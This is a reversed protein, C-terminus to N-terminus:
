KRKAKKKPPMWLDKILDTNIDFFGKPIRKSLFGNEKLGLNILKSSQNKKNVYYINVLDEKEVVSYNDIKKPNSDYDKFLSQIKRLFVESHTEVILRTAGRDFSYYGNRKKSKGYSKYSFDLSYYFIFKALAAIMNPHLHNEPEEICLVSNVGSMGPADFPSPPIPPLFNVRNNRRKRAESLYLQSLISIVAANGSGTESLSVFNSGATKVLLEFQGTHFTNEESFLTSSTGGAYAMVPRIRFEFGAGMHKLSKNIFKQLGLLESNKRNDFQYPSDLDILVEFQDGLLEIVDNQPIVGNSYEKKLIRASIKELGGSPRFYDIDASKLIRAYDGMLYQYAKYQFDTIMREILIRDLKIMQEVISKQTIRYKKAMTAINKKYKKRIFDPSCVINEDMLNKVVRKTYEAQIALVFSNGFHNLRPLDAIKEMQNKSVIEKGKNLLKSDYDITLYGLQDKDGSVPNKWGTVGKKFIKLHGVENMFKELAQMDDIPLAKKKRKDSTKSDIFVLNSNTKFFGGDNYDAQYANQYYSPVNERRAISKTYLKHSSSFDGYTFLALNVKQFKEYVRDSQSLEDFGANADDIYEYYFPQVNRASLLNKMSDHNRLAKNSRNENGLFIMKRNVRSGLLKKTLKTDSGKVLARMRAKQSRSYIDVGVHHLGTYPPIDDKDDFMFGVSDCLSIEQELVELLPKFVEVTLNTILEEMEFGVQSDESYFIMKGRDRGRRDPALAATKPEIIHLGDLLEAKSKFSYINSEKNFIQHLTGTSNKSEEWPDTRLMGSQSFSFRDKIKDAGVMDIYANLSTYDSSLNFGLPTQTFGPKGLASEVNKAKLSLSRYFMRASHKNISSIIDSSEIFNHPIFLPSKERLSNYEIFESHFEDILKQKSKRDSPIWFDVSDMEKTLYSIEEENPNIFDMLNYNAWDNRGGLLASPVNDMDFRTNMELGHLHRDFNHYLNDDIIDILYKKDTKPNKNQWEEIRKKEFDHLEGFIPVALPNANLSLYPTTDNNWMKSVYVYRNNNDYERVHTGRSYGFTLIQDIDFDKQFAQGYLPNRYQSSLSTFYKVAETLTSKGASNPGIFVNLRRLDLTTKKDFSKLNKFSIQM